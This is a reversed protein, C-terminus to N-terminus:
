KKIFIYNVTSDGQINSLGATKLCTYEMDSTNYTAIATKLNECYSNLMPLSIEYRSPLHNTFDPCLASVFDRFFRSEVMSFPINEAYMWRTLHHRADTVQKASMIKTDPFKILNGNHFKNSSPPYSDIAM